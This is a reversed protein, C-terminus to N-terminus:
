RVQWTVAFRNLEFAVQWSSRSANMLPIKPLERNLCGQFHPSTEPRLRIGAPTARGRDLKVEMSVTVQEPFAPDRSRADKGCELITKEVATRVIQMSAGSWTESNREQLLAMAEGDTGMDTIETAAMGEHTRMGPIDAGSGLSTDRFLFSTVGLLFSFSVATISCLILWRIPQIETSLWKGPEGSM